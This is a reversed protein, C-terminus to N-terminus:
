FVRHTALAMRVIGKLDVSDWPKLLYRHVSGENLARIALQVDSQGTLMMRVVQPYSLRVRQMLDLGNMHPMNFDSIVADIGGGALIDLAEQGNSAERIFYEPSRLARRVAARLDDEDDVLLLTFQGITRQSAQPDAAATM